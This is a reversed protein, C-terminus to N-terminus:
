SHYSKTIHLEKVLCDRRNVLGEKTFWIFCGNCFSWIIAETFSKLGESAVGVFHSEEDSRNLIVSKPVLFVYRTMSPLANLCGSVSILISCIGLRFIDWVFLYSCFLMASLCICSIFIVIHSFALLIFKWVYSATCSSVNIFIYKICVDRCIYM